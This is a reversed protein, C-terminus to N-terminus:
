FKTSDYEDFMRNAEQDPSLVLEKKSIGSVSAVFNKTEVSEIYWKHSNGDVDKQIIGVAFLVHLYKEVGEKQLGFGDTAGIETATMPKDYTTLIELVKRRERSVSSWACKKVVNVMDATVVAKGDIEYAEMLQLAHLLTQFMKRDRGVGPKSVLADPKGTKFDLHVTAKANVCFTAAAAVEAEQETTIILDDIGHQAVFTKVGEIYDRYLPHMNEAIERSSMNVERQKAIIEADTPQDLYYYVNREGLSRASELLYYIDPTCAAIVGIKGKWSVEGTGTRKSFTGDYVLRLQGLIEAREMVNKSLLATFDSFCLMGSGIIKLLSVEKGGKMKYGSLFSKSTLDDAFFIAPLGSLPVLYSSKGGSSPAVVMLWLPDRNVLANGIVTAMIMNIIYPDRTVMYKEFEAKVAALKPM